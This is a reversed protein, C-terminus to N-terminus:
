LAHKGECLTCPRELYDMHGMDTFM